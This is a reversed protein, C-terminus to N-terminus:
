EQPVPGEAPAAAKPAPSAETEASPASAEESPGAGPATSKPRTRPAPRSAAAPAASVVKLHRDFAKARNGADGGGMNLMRRRARAIASQVVAPSPHSKLAQVWVEIAKEQENGEARLKGLEFLAHPLLESDGYREAFEQFARLADARGGELMALSQARLLLADDAFVSTEFRKALKEGELACQKYDGLEFYMKAVEYSLEAGQPPNRAVAATLESIAGRLDRYRTRLINALHIRGELTEPAEPCQRILERYAQVARRWDRLELYNVDASGRLARARLVQAEASDDKGLLDLAKRYERLADDPHAEFLYRKADAIHSTPTEKCGALALALCCVLTAPAPLCPRRM